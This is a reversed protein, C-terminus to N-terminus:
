ATMKPGSQLSEDANDRLEYGLCVLKKDVLKNVFSEYARVDAEIRSTIISIYVDRSDLNGTEYPNVFLKELAASVDKMIKELEDSIFNENIDLETESNVSDAIGSVYTYFIEDIVKVLYEDVVYEAKEMVSYEEFAAEINRVFESYYGMCKNKIVRLINETDFRPFSNIDFTENERSKIESPLEISSSSVFRKDKDVQEIMDTIEDIEREIEEDFKSKKIVSMMLNQYFAKDEKFSDVYEKFVTNKEYIDVFMPLDLKKIRRLFDRRDNLSNMIVDFNDDKYAFLVEGKDVIVRYQPGDLEESFIYTRATPSIKKTGDINSFRKGDSKKKEALRAKYDGFSVINDKAFDIFDGNYRNQCTYLVSQEFFDKLSVTIGNKLTVSKVKLDMYPFVEKKLYDEFKLEQGNENFTKSLIMPDIMSLVTEEM